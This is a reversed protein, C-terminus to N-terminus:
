KKFLYDEKNLISFETFPIKNERIFDWLLARKSKSLKSLDITLKDGNKDAM